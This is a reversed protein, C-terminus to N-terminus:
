PFFAGYILGSITAMCIVVSEETAGSLLGQEGTIVEKVQLDDLVFVIVTKAQEAMTKCDSVGTGGNTVFEELAESRCDFAVVNYGAGLLRKAAPMGMRGLGVIGITDKM